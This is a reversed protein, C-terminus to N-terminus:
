SDPEEHRIKIRHLPEERRRRQRPLVVELLGHQYRAQIGEEEIPVPLPIMRKFDGIFREALVTQERSFRRSLRGSVVLKGDQMYLDIASINTLGPLEVHVVVQKETKYVDVNPALTRKTTHAAASPYGHADSEEADQGGNDAAGPVVSLVDNWFEDGFFQRAQQEWLKFNPSNKM